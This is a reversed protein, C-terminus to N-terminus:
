VEQMQTRCSNESKIQDSIFTQSKKKKLKDSINLLGGSM